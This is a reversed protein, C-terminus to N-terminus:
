VQAAQIAAKDAEITGAYQAVLAVQTDLTQRPVVNQASLAQYRKLDVQAGNLLAQDRVLQGQAQALAAEYPRSDIRALLDGKKV